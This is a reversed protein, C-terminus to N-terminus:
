GQFLDTQWLELLRAPDPASWDPSILVNPEANNQIWATRMRVAAAGAIDASASDGVMVAEAPQCQLRMLAMEFLPHGPKGIGIPRSGGAVAVAEALAGCGPEYRNPGVPFRADLNVAFLKAGQHVASAAYKLSAYNFEPDVGVVVAQSHEWEEMALVRHGARELVRHLETTGLVLVNVPGLERHVAEGAIEVAAVVESPETPIGMQTLKKSLETSPKRSNNSVFVVKRGANRLAAVLEIAGPLLAEGSWITGDLDFAFGKMDNLRISM